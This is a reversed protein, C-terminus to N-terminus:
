KIEGYYRSRTVVAQGRAEEEAAGAGVFSKHQNHLRRVGALNSRIEVVCWRGQLKKIGYGMLKDM